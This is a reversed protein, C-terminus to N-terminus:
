LAIDVSDGFLTVIADVHLALYAESPYYNAENAFNKIQVTLLSGGTTRLGTLVHGERSYRELDWLLSFAESAWIKSPIMGVLPGMASGNGLRLRWM